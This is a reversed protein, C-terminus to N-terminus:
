LDFIPARLEKLILDGKVIERSRVKENFVRAIRKQYILIHDVITLCKEDILALEEYRQRLWDFESVECEALVRLLPLETKVLLVLEIEYVLSYLTTGISTKMSTRYGWLFFPLKEYWDKYTDTM